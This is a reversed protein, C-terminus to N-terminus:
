DSYIRHGGLDRILMDDTLDDAMLDIIYDYLADLGSECVQLLEGRRDEELVIKWVNLPLNAFLSASEEELAALDEDSQEATVLGVLPRLGDSWVLQRKGTFAAAYERFLRPAQKDQDACLQLLAFPSYHGSKKGKKLHGKVMENDCGWKSVYRAADSADQLTAGHSNPCPLGAALCVSQWLGLKSSNATKQNFDPNVLRLTFLYMDVASLPKRTFLLIHFHPHWGNEGHTVELARIRGIIGMEEAIGVFRPKSATADRGAWAKRKLFRRLADSLGDLVTQLRDNHYHPVTLTLMHVGGGSRLHNHVGESLEVRRRETIKTACIPCVWVSGCTMLGGYHFGKDSKLIKVQNIKGPLANLNPILSRCCGNLGKSLGLVNRAVSQLRWRGLRAVLALAAPSAAPVDVATKFDADPVFKSTQPRTKRNSGLSALNM